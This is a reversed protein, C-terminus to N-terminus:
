EVVSFDIGTFIICAGGDNYVQIFGWTQDTPRLFMILPAEAEPLIRTASAYSFYGNARLETMLTDTRQCSIMQAMTLAATLLM